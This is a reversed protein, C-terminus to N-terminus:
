TNLTHKLFSVAWTEEGVRGGARGLTETGMGLGEVGEGGLM